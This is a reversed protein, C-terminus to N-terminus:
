DQRIFHWATVWEDFQILFYLSYIFACPHCRIHTNTRKCTQTQTLPLFLYSSLLRSCHGQTLAPSLFSLSLSILTNKFPFSLRLFLTFCLFTICTCLSPVRTEVERKEALIFDDPTDCMKYFMVTYCYGVRLRVLSMKILASIRLIVNDKRDLPGYRDCTLPQEVRQIDWGVM